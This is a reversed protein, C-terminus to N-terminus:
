VLLRSVIFDYIWVHAIYSWNGRDIKENSSNRKDRKDVEFYLFGM